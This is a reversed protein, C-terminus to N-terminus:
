EKTLAEDLNLLVNSVVVWPAQAPDGGATLKRAAAPGARYQTQSRRLLSELAAIEKESPRRATVTRFGHILKERPTAGELRAALVRAAEVFAEDNLTTLAQLPTNSRPREVTCVNRDPADFTMFTPYVAARKYFTYMGRRYRDEGESVKWSQIGGEIFLNEFVSPPLPPFVSPGGIKASLLGASALTVDRIAEGSLRFRPGRSLLRNEPDKALRAPDAQSSQRYTESMVIKKVFGKFDWASDVLDAALLDLLEPHSPREGQAGFDEGTKVLGTGFIARWVHNAIVRATVPNERSVLWRALDLRTARGTATLQPLV